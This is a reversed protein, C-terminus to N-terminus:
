RGDSIPLRIPRNQSIRLPLWRVANGGLYAVQGAQCLQVQHVVLQRRQGRLQLFQYVLPYNFKGPVREPTLM